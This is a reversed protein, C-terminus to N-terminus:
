HADGASQPDGVKVTGIWVADRIRFYEKADWRWKVYINGCGVMPAGDITKAGCPPPASGGVKPRTEAGAFFQAMTMSSVGSGGYGILSGTMMSRTRRLELEMRPKAVADGYEATLRSLAALAQERQSADLQRWVEDRTAVFRPFRREAALSLWAYAMVPDCKVGEGHLYMLGLSLQSLKDAYRAGYEFYTKAKAYNGIAYYQMGAFEGFEDPHGWTPTRAMAALVEQSAKDDMSAAFAPSSLSLCACVLAFRKADM